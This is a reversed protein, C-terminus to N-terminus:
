AERFARIMADINEPPVDGPVDHTPSAIYGGDRGLIGMTKRTVAFVEDPTM